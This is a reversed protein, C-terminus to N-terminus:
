VLKIIILNFFDFVVQIINISDIPMPITDITNKNQNFMGTLSILACLWIVLSYIDVVEMM